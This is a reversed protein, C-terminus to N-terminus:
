QLNGRLFNELIQNSQADSISVDLDELTGSAISTAWSGTAHESDSIGKWDQRLPKLFPIVWYPAMADGM